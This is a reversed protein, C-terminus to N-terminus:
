DRGPCEAVAPSGRQAPPIPARTARLNERLIRRVELVSLPHTHVELHNAPVVIESDVGALHASQYPVIGDGVTNLQGGFFRELILDNNQAVGIISHYRTGPPQRRGALIELGPADPRLLDVSTPLRNRKKGMEQGLGARWVEVSSQLLTRPMGALSAALRGATSHSLGSGRHPTAIFVAHAISPNRQFFVTDTVTRRAKESIALSDLAPSGILRFFDDGSDVTQLKALLGGMSHGVVVMRDLNADQRQPDFRERVTKLRQRLDGASSLYPASTPYFYFWFQYRERLDPEAELDNFMPAWTLPSSLLGHIFLVPIKGPQYPEIMYIGTEAEISQPRMFGRLWANRLESTALGYALPTTIDSELPVHLGRVEIAQVRLPDYLELRGCRCQALDRLSGEFRFFATAPFSSRDGLYTENHNQAANRSAILPVGLGYTRHHNALGRVNFDACLQLQHFDGPPWVFGHQVVSLRFTSGDPTPIELVSSPDLRGVALAAQLCKALSQNYLECALRFRPDFANQPTFWRDPADGNPDSTAPSGERPKRATTFLYHYSYGAARYYLALSEHTNWTETKRGRLFTLEALTYLFDPQPESQYLEVLRTEAEAPAKEALQALDYKRLTQETRASPTGPGILNEKFATFLSEARSARDVRIGTSCATLAGLCAALLMM